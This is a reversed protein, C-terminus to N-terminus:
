EKSKKIFFNEGFRLSRTTMESTMNMTRMLVYLFSIGAVLGKCGLFPIYRQFWLPFIISENKISGGVNCTNGVHSNVRRISHNDYYNGWRFLLSRSLSERRKIEGEFFFFYINTTTTTFADLFSPYDFLAELIDRVCLYESQDTYCNGLFFFPPHSCLISFSEFLTYQCFFRTIYKRLIERRIM